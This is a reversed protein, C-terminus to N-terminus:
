GVLASTQLGWQSGAASIGRGQALWADHHAQMVLWYLISTGSIKALGAALKPSVRKREKLLKCVTSYSVGLKIALAKRSLNLRPLLEERIIEGPHYPGFLSFEEREQDKFRSNHMSPINKQKKNAGHQRSYM